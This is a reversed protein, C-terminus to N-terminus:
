LTGEEMDLRICDVITGAAFFSEGEPLVLLCNARHMSTLMASSQAGSLAAIYTGDDRRSAKARLFYRRDPKKKVDHALEVPHRSRLLESHGAMKRMVPRVFLEFGVMTSTPNGPLGFFPTGGITGHTQPAGPRMAVKWFDMEGIQELVDKVVDYDGMSVGGTTVMLDFEPARSLIATTHEVNDRAVELVHPEGGAALVQAALSYSNSNRIKGPGPFEEIDVLEDGTAVVAVRPRRYVLPHACGVAAMLGVAAATVVEGREMVTQGASVDEGKRRIHDGAQASAMIVAVAGDDEEATREVMVVADSGEPVPAGTMIRTAQGTGVVVQPFAGAPVHEVVRLRAPADESAGAVDAARVAYGDMASNDFPAVDIDSVVDEALVRGLASLPDTREPELASIGALVIQQAEEVSIM